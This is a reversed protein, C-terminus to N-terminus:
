RLREIIVSPQEREQIVMRSAFLLAGVAMLTLALLLRRRQRPTRGPVPPAPHQMESLAADFSSRSIGAETAVDRLQAVSMESSRKADLEIARALLQRAADDAFRVGEVDRANKDHM